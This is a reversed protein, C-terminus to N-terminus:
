RHDNDSQTACHLMSFLGALGCLNSGSQCYAGAACHSSAPPCITCAFFVTVKALRAQTRSYDTPLERGINSKAVTLSIINDGPYLPSELCIPNWIHAPPNDHLKVVEARGMFLRATISIHVWEGSAMEMAIARHHLTNCSIKKNRKHAAAAASMGGYSSSTALPGVKQWRSSIRFAAMCSGLM